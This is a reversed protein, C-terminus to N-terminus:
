DRSVIVPDLTTCAIFNGSVNTDVRIAYSFGNAEGLKVRKSHNYADPQSDFDFAINVGGSDKNNM